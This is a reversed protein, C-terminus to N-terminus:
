HFLFISIVAMTYTLVCSLRNVYGNWCEPVTGQRVDAEKGSHWGLVHDMAIEYADRMPEGDLMPWTSDRGGEQRWDLAYHLEFARQTLLDQKERIIHSINKNIENLYNVPDQRYNAIDSFPM